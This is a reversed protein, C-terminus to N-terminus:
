QGLEVANIGRIVSSWSHAGAALMLNLDGYIAWCAKNNVDEKPIENLYTWALNIEERDEAPAVPELVHLCNAVFKKRAAQLFSIVQASLNTPATKAEFANDTEEAHALDTWARENSDWRLFWNNGSAYRPIDAAYAALLCYWPYLFDSSLDQLRATFAELRRKAEAEEGRDLAAFIAKFEALTPNVHIPM